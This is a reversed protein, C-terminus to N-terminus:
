LQKTKPVAELRARLDPEIYAPVNSYWWHGCTVVNPFIWAHSVLEQNLGSSLVSVCFTVSPFANFLERYQLLSCRQDFLDQGQYVGKEYVRRNVGIMLDFPLKFQSCHEALIWFVSRSVDKWAETTNRQTASDLAHDFEADSTPRTVFDPPL